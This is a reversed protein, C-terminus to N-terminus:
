ETKKKKFFPYGLFKSVFISVLFERLDSLRQNCSCLRWNFQLFPEWSSLQGVLMVERFVLLLEVKLFNKLRCGFHCLNFIQIKRQHWQLSHTKRTYREQHLLSFKPPFVLFFSWKSSRNQFNTSISFSKLRLLFKKDSTNSNESKPQTSHLYFSSTIFNSFEIIKQFFVIFITKTNIRCLSPDCFPRVAVAKRNTISFSLNVVKWFTLCNLGWM